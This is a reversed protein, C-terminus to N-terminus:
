GERVARVTHFAVGAPVTGAGISADDWLTMRYGRTRTAVVIGWLEPVCRTFSRKKVIAGNDLTAVYTIAKRSTTAM